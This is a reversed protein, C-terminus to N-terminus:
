HYHAAAKEQETMQNLKKWSGNEPTMKEVPKWSENKPTMKEMPQPGPLLYRPGKTVQTTPNDQSYSGPPAKPNASHDRVEVPKKGAPAGKIDHFTMNEHHAIANPDTAQDRRETGQLGIEPNLPHQGPGEVMWGSRANDVAKDIEKDL